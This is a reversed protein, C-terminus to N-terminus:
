ELMARADAIYSDLFQQVAPINYQQGNRRELLRGGTQSLVDLYRQVTNATVSNPREAILKEYSDKVEDELVFMDDFVPTNSQGYIYFPLYRDLYLQLVEEREPTDLYLTVYEEAMVARAALEDWSIVLGGDRATPKDSEEAKLIIYQKLPESLYGSFKRQMGYDVIPFITGEVGELKYGGSLKTVVLQRVEADEIEAATASNIVQSQALLAEQVHPQAFQEQTAEIDKSYFVNLARIMLDANPQGAKSANENLFSVIEAAEKAEKVTNRFSIMLADHSTDSAPEAALKSEGTAAGSDDDACGTLITAIITILAAIRIFWGLSQRKSM